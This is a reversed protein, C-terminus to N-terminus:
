SLPYSSVVRYGAINRYPEYYVLGLPSLTYITRPSAWLGGLYYHECSIRPIGDDQFLGTSVIPCPGISIQQKLGLVSAYPELQAPMRHPRFNVIGANSM